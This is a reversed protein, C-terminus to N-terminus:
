QIVRSIEEASYGRSALFSLMKRRVEPTMEGGLTRLKKDAEDAMISYYTDDDIVAMGAEIAEKPLHKTRLHYLVKQRGWRQQLLKGECFARAYRMDNLYDEARLREVILKVDGSTAGWVILKQRVGSECQEGLACYRRARDLLARTAETLTAANHTSKKGEM